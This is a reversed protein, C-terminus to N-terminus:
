RSRQFRGRQIIRGITEDDWKFKVKNAWAEFFAAATDFPGGIGPLPGLEYGGERNRVIKGIKPLRISTIQVRAAWRSQDSFELLRVVNNLGSTVQDLATCELHCNANSAVLCLQDWQTRQFCRVARSDGSQLFDDVTTWSSSASDAPM